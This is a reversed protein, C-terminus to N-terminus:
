NALLQKYIMKENEEAEKWKGGLGESKIKKWVVMVPCGGAGGESVMTNQM